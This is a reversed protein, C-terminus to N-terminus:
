LVQDNDEGALEKIRLCFRAQPNADMLKKMNLLARKMSAQDSEAPVEANLPYTEALETPYPGFPPKFHLVADFGEAKAKIDDTILVDGFFSLRDLRSGYRIVESRAASEPSLYFLTSKSSTDISELWEGKQSFRKFGDVM